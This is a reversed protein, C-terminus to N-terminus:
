PQPSQIGDKLASLRRTFGLKRLGDQVEPCSMFLRWLLGSRYNEMMVVIPGQDIALYRQPYWDDQESFADYPGYPGYIKEGWHHMAASAERPLYPFSSLAATPSIVGLDDRESPAHAAYGKVSYSATLGWNDPGYGKFKKPNKVCWAYNIQAQNHTEQQYDAYKDSLGRPDLGLWSYHAWFLPGGNVADGQHHLQLPIGLAPHPDRIKGNEAWGQHYVEPSVPHTPSSAALVYMIMCENYGHVPFNMQWAYNPSWHWYLVNQGNRFWDFDIDRWLADFRNALAKERPSGDRFYQRVCLMGQALFSTEVLDGGDDKKGFPKVKGSPGHIWHPWAGHFRDAKELYGAIREFREVAEERSIYGREIGSLLAMLGFGSGGTTVTDQDNDPYVNDCHIRERALGSTPEAGEWFYQFTSKQVREFVPDVEQAALPAALLLLALIRKMLAPPERGRPLNM